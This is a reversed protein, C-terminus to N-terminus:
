HNKTNQKITKLIQEITNTNQIMFYGIRSQKAHPSPCGLNFDYLSINKDYKRIFEKIGKNTNCAFQIAPTDDFYLKEKTQPNILGTYILAAGAKKCLFRFAIDNVQHIPALFYPNKIKLNGIKMIKHKKAM